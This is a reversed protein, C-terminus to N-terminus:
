LSRGLHMDCWPCPGDGVPCTCHTPVPAPEARDHEAQEQPTRPARGMQFRGALLRPGSCPTVENGRHQILGCRACIQRTGQTEFEHGNIKRQESM